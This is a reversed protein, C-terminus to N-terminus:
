AERRVGRAKAIWEVVRASSNWYAGGGSAGAEAGRDAAGAGPFAVSTSLVKPVVESNLVAGGSNLMSALGVAAFATGGKGAPRKVPVITVVEWEGPELHVPIGSRAPAIAM